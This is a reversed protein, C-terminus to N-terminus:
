RAPPPQLLEIQVGYPDRVYAIRAGATPGEPIELPASPVEVGHRALDALAADMDSVEFCAHMGGIEDHRPRHTVPETRYEVLEWMSSGIPLFAVRFDAAPVQFMTAVEPGAAETVLAPELGFVDRYFALAEDLDAVTVGVHDIGTLWSPRGNPEASM